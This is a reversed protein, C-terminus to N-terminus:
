GPPLNPEQQTLCHIAGLGVVLDRAPIPIVERDSFLEELVALARSDTPSGFTPVLAVGNALYFNVYSAPCRYGDEVVPTPMPVTVVSLVRGHADRAQRLRNLNAQLKLHNPDESDLEEAAVVVGPAVFRAMDDVHGDTDDGVIDGDLWIVQNVGLNEALRAEMLERSRGGVERCPNLLCSETTLVTGDGDGDISGGELVFDLSIRRRGCLRAIDSAALADKESPYKGGWADFQFDLACCDGPQTLFIPGFDRIWADNTPIQHCQVNETEIGALLLRNQIRDSSHTDPVLIEVAEQAVLAGTINLFIEEIAELRGPWTDANHPWAIWTARHPEWEAPWRYKNIM